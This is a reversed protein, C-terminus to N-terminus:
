KEKKNEILGKIHFESECFISIYFGKPTLSYLKSKFRKSCLLYKKRYLSGLVIDPRLIDVKLGSIKSSELATVPDLEIYGFRNKSLFKYWRDGAKRLLILMAAEKNTLELSKIPQGSM